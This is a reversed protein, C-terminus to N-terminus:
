NSFEKVFEFGVSRGGKAIQRTLSILQEGSFVPAGIRVLILLGIKSIISHSKKLREQWTYLRWSNPILLYKIDGVPSGDDKLPMEIRADKIGPMMRAYAYLNDTIIPTILGMDMLFQSGTLQRSLSSVEQEDM